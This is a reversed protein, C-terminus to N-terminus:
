QDRWCPLDYVIQGYPGHKIGPAVFEWREVCRAFAHNTECKDDCTLPGGQWGVYPFGHAKIYAKVGQEINRM